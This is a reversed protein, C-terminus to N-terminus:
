NLMVVLKCKKGKDQKQVSSLQRTKCGTQIVPLLVIDGYSALWEKEPPKFKDKLM